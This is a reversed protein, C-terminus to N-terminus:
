KEIEECIPIAYKAIGLLYVCYKQRRRRRGDPVYILANRTSYIELGEEFVTINSPLFFNKKVGGLLAEGCFKQSITTTRHTDRTGTCLFHLLWFIYRLIPISYSVPHLM